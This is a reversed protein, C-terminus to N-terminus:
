KSGLFKDLNPVDVWTGTANSEQTLDMLLQSYVGEKLSPILSKGADIAEVWRDVVRIFPAIRGDPYVQPFEWRQPIKIEALPEGAQSGWLRFGHVYDQQNDSGLVLTGKSGYIEVWHGRGQYTVSSLCVQCPMGGALELMLTCSDDADVPKLNGSDKPDPRASIGTILQGSLRQVPGFLWSLYDFVHSGTAGLVGGGLEKQAYWNWPRAADARGSVLWDIKILRNEGVYGAALLEALMQWAPIFRFEFDMTAIARSGSNNVNTQSESNTLRYLERAEYATLATPKELLLHKGAQLVTKAMEFHLFPPTSISVGAVEPIAAIDAISNCAYPINHTSAIAQAKDLNRHYVAVVETRHHAQFGPLHVKQGFGTGVIAVGIKSM